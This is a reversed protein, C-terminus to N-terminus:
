YQEGTHQYTKLTAMRSLTERGVNETIEGMRAVHKGQNIV